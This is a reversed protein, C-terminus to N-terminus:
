QPLRPIISTAVSGVTGAIGQIASGWARQSAAAPSAIAGLVPEPGFDYEGLARPLQWTARPTALPQVPMPLVGPDLMRQAEAALDASAKDTAIERLVAQTNRGAGSFAENLQAVQRGFDAATVQYGKMASRGQVGRARLKGENIISDIYAEEQDFAQETRIDQLARFEADRATIESEQNLGIQGSYIQESKQFQQENSTQELNRILLQQNYQQLNSADQFDAQKGENAKRILIENYAHNRDAMIKQKNLDWLQMDYGYQRYTAQNRLEAETRAAEAQKGGGHIQGGIGVGIAAGVAGAHMVGTALGAGLGVGGLALIPLIM